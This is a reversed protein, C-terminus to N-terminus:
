EIKISINVSNNSTSLNDELRTKDYLIGITTSLQNISNDDDLKKYIKELAKNIIIHSKRTFNKKYEKVSDDIISQKEKQTYQNLVTYMTKPSINYTKCINDISSKSKNLYYELVIAKKDEPSLKYNHKNNTQIILENKKAITM